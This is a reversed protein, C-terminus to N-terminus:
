YRISGDLTVTMPQEDPVSLDILADFTGEGSVHAFRGTGGTFAFTGTGEGTVADLIGVYNFRVSDGNAAFITVSGYGPAMGHVDPPGLVLTGFQTTKGMHTVPGGGVFHAPPAFLGDFINDWTATVRGEFPLSPKEGVPSSSAEVGLCLTLVLGIQGFRSM